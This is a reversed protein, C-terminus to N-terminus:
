DLFGNIWDILDQHDLRFVGGTGGCSGNLGYSTIGAVLYGSAAADSGLFNPGGSDGFCTGGSASNNSLLFSFDGTFGPTNVQLLWPNAQLRIKLSVDPSPTWGNPTLTGTTFQTGYGVATFRAGKRGVTLDDFQGESSPITAYPGSYGLADEVSQNLVVIGLDAMFWPLPNEYDDFTYPTGTVTFGAAGWAPLFFDAPLDSFDPYGNSGQTSQVDEMLWVMATTMGDTCHGATLYVTESLMTGSCRHSVEGTSDFYVSLGVMPHEGDDPVGGKTVAGAPIAIALAMALAALTTLLRKM